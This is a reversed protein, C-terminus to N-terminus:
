EGSCIIIFSRSKLLLPAFKMLKPFSLPNEIWLYVTKELIDSDVDAHTEKIYVQEQTTTPSCKNYNGLLTLTSCIEIELLHWSLDINL